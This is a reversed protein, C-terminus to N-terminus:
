RSASGPSNMMAARRPFARVVPKHATHGVLGAFALNREIEKLRSAGVLCGKIGVSGIGVAVVIRLSVNDCREVGSGSELSGTFIARPPPKARESM